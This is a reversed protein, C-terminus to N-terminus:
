IDNHTLSVCRLSGLLSSSCQLQRSIAKICQRGAPQNDSTQLGLFILHRVSILKFGWFIKFMLVLVPCKFKQLNCIGVQTKTEKIQRWFHTWKYLDKNLTKNCLWRSFITEAQLLLWLQLIKHPHFDIIVILYKNNKCCVQARLCLLHTNVTGKERAELNIRINSTSTKYLPLHFVWQYIKTTIYINFWTQPNKKQNKTTKERYQLILTVSM